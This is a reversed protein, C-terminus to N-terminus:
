NLDDFFFGVLNIVIGKYGVFIVKLDWFEVIEVYDSKGNWLM